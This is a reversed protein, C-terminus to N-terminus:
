NCNSHISFIAFDHFHSVTSDNGLDPNIEDKDARVLLQKRGNASKNSTILNIPGLEFYIVSSNRAHVNIKCQNM